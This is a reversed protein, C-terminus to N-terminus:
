GVVVFLFFLLEVPLHDVVGLVLVPFLVAVRLRESEVVHNTRIENLTNHLIQRAWDALFHYLVWDDVLRAEM